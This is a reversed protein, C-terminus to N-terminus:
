VSPLPHVAHDGQQNPIKAAMPWPDLNICGTQVITLSFLNIFRLTFKILFKHANFLM